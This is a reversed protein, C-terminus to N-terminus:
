ICNGDTLFEFKSSELIRMLSGEIESNVISLHLNGYQCVHGVISHALNTFHVDPVVTNCRTLWALHGIFVPIDEIQVKLAGNFKKGLKNEKLYDVALKAPKYDNDRYLWPTNMDGLFTLDKCGMKAFVNKMEKGLRKIKTEFSKGSIKLIFFDYFDPYFEDYDKKSKVWILSPLSPYKELCLKRNVKTIM